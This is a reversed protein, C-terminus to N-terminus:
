GPPTLELGQHVDVASVFAQPAVQCLILDLDDTTCQVEGALRGALSSLRQRPCAADVHGPVHAFMCTYSQPNGDRLAVCSCSGGAQLRQFRWCGKTSCFGSWALRHTDAMHQTTSHLDIVGKFLTNM